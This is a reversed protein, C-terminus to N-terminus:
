VDTGGRTWVLIVGCASGLPNYQAPISAAGPYAEIALIDDPTVMDLSDHQDRASASVMAAGDLYVTPICEGMMLGKGRTSIVIPGFRSPKVMFGRMYRFIDATRLPNLHEIRDSTMFAGLGQRQRDYFGNRRLRMSRGWSTAVVGELEIPQEVMTVAKRVTDVGSFDAAVRAMAYGPRRLEILRNGVPIQNVFAEGTADSRGSQNLGGIVVQADAIPRGQGDRVDLILVSGPARPQQAAASGAASAVALAALALRPLIRPM